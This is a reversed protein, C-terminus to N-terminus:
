PQPHASSLTTPTRGFRKLRLSNLLVSVSSLAMAGSALVPSLTVGVGALVGAAVPVGVVNYAFAWFLNQRITRFTARALELADPLAAIGGRVLAVDATAVAVDAGSGIAVGLHAGALAPADNIGDGVMAVTRGRARERAVIAAKEDPKVEAVVETLGVERAIAQATARRDGSVMVVRIGRARLREVAARAGPLPRDAVGILGITAGDVGVFVPTRGKEALTAAREALTGRPPERMWDASGVLVSHAGVRASAGLGPEAVFSQAGVITLGRQAAGEVVARAVPHESSAEVSAALALVESETHPSVAVVDTLVPRGTTLTGTKDVLVTDVKSAIELATGGKVLVGLEAGRGTGVAVAAPTALGLACPCAIVLVAVFYRLANGVGEATPDLAIWVAFTLLAVGLVAPVFVASVRDALQAIPAKSGQAQEVARVIRALATDKAGKTIRVTLAGLHNFTGAYVEDGSRKLAPQSEGTLMSEDLTSSGEEIRGDGAVREGPRVRIRDGPILTEAHVESAVDGELRLAMVPQLSVLGRVVESLRKRARTELWKGLLVFTVIAGAAEFYVHPPHHEGHPFLWPAVVAVTSYLWAASVGMSVLTNMDATRHRLAAYAGRFFRRGPLALVVAALALQTWRGVPENAFAILGHSMGLVLLPTTLGLAVLFDRKTKAAERDEPARADSVRPAERAPLPAAGVGYGAKKVAAVLEARGAENPNFTVTARETAFNVTAATVGPVALVAKEVRRVCSACTMGEIPLELECTEPAGLEIPPTALTITQTTM